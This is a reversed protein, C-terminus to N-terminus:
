RNRNRAKHAIQLISTAFCLGFAGAAFISTTAGLDDEDELQSIATFVNDACANLSQEMPPMISQQYHKVVTENPQASKTGKIRKVAM